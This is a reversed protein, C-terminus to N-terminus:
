LRLSSRNLEMAEHILNDILVGVMRLILHLVHIIIHDLPAHVLPASVQGAISKATARNEPMEKAKETPKGRENTNEKPQENKKEGRHKRSLM